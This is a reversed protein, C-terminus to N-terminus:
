AMKMMSVGGALHSGLSFGIGARVFTIAQPALIDMLTFLVIVWTFIRIVNELSPTSRRSKHVVWYYAFTLLLSELLYKLVVSKLYNIDGLKRLIMTTDAATM